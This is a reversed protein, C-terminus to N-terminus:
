RHGGHERPPDTRECGAPRLDLTGASELADLLLRTKESTGSGLEVLTRAGTREAIEDARVALIARERRTPYYEPLRTIEDFLRSGREDYLWVTTVEKPRQRLSWFTADHLASRRDAEDFLRDVRIRPQTATRSPM